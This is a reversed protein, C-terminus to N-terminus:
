LAKLFILRVTTLIFLGKFYEILFYLLLASMSIFLATGFSFMLKSYYLSDLFVTGTLHGGTPEGPYCFLPGLILLVALIPGIVLSKFPKEVKEKNKLKVFNSNPLNSGILYHILVTLFPLSIIEISYILQSVQPFESYEGYHAVPFFISAMFNVFKRLILSSDLIDQPLVVTLLFVIIGFAIFTYGTSRWRDPENQTMYYEEDRESAYKKLPSLIYRLNMFM